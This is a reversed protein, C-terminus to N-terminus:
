LNFEKKLINKFRTTSIYHDALLKGNYILSFTGYTSPAQQAEQPTKLETIKSDLGKEKAIQLIEPISRIVWPCQRSYVINLGQYDKLKEETNHFKPLNGEKLKKVLLTFSPKSQDIEEFGNKQFISKGAMFSGESTVVAVGNKNEKEAEQICEKILKSAYGKGKFKNPSIWLCHIFIYNKANVPRWAFEGPLYEIFGICKDDETYIQKVRLGENFREKLWEYKKLNGEHKPNLFCRPQYQDLNDKNISIIKLDSM